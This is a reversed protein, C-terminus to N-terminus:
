GFSKSADAQNDFLRCGWITLNSFNYDFRDPNYYQDDKRREAIGSLYQECMAIYCAERFTQANVTAVLHAPSSGGTASWGEAWVEFRTLLPPEKQRPKSDGLMRVFYPSDVFPPESKPEVVADVIRSTPLDDSGYDIDEREMIQALPDSARLSEIEQKRRSLKM